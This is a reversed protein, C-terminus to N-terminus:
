FTHLINARLDGRTQALLALPLGGPTSKAACSAPLICQWKMSHSVHKGQLLSGSCSIQKSQSSSRGSGGLGFASQWSHKQLPKATVICHLRVHRSKPQRGLKPLRGFAGGHLRQAMADSFSGACCLM